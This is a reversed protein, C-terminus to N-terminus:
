EKKFHQNRVPSYRIGFEAVPRFYITSNYPFMSILNMKAIVIFPLQKKMSLDVGIGGGLTFLAYTYGALKKKSIDGKVNVIYTEGGLFTRSLGPGFSVESVFGKSNIKRMVLESTIYLNDHFEPHHYWNLSVSVFREKLSFVDKKTNNIVKFKGKLAPIEIGAATGPYIVSSLCSVRLNYKQIHVSNISDDQAQCFSYTFIFLIVICPKLM